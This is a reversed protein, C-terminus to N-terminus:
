LREQVVGRRRESAGFGRPPDRSDCRRLRRGPRQTCRRSFLRCFCQCPRGLLSPGGRGRRRARQRAWLRRARQRASLRRARQRAWLRRARCGGRRCPRGLRSPGEHRRPIGGRRGGGSGVRNQDCGLGFRFRVLRGRSRAAAAVEAVEAVEAAGAGTRPARPAVPRTNGASGSGAGSAPWPGARTSARHLWFPPTPLVM